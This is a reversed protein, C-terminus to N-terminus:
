WFAKPSLPELHPASLPCRAPSPTLRHWWKSAATPRKLVDTKNDPSPRQTLTRATFPQPHASTALCGRPAHGAHVKWLSELTLRASHQTGLVAFGRAGVLSCGQAQLKPPPAAQGGGGGERPFSYNGSYTAQGLSSRPESAFQQPNFDLAM